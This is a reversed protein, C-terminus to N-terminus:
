IFILEYRHYAAHDIARLQLVLAIAALAATGDFIELLLYLVRPALMHPSGVPALSEPQPLLGGDPL